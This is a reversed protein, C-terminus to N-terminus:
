KRPCTADLDPERSHSEYQRTSTVFAKGSICLVALNPHKDVNNYVVASDPDVSKVGELDRFNNGPSCAVGLVTLAGTILIIRSKRM